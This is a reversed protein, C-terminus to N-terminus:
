REVDEIIEDWKGSPKWLREATLIKSILGKDSEGDKGDDSVTESGSTAEDMTDASSQSYNGQEANAKENTASVKGKGPQKMNTNQGAVKFRQKWDFGYSSKYEYDLKKGLM